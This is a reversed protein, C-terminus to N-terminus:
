ASHGGLLRRLGAEDLITVGLAEAKALKSGAEAGAVVYDTKASVSGACRGGAAKILAEAQPRTLTPLTGTLVFTKGAVGEVAAVVTRPATMVVGHARLAEIVRRVSPHSLQELVTVATTEAVQEVQEMAAIAADRDSAFQDAVALLAEMSGFHSALDEALKEGVLSLSLGTLLRALGRTKARAIAGVLNEASRTGFRELGELQAVTLDFLDAPTRVGLREVVQDVIAPGLGEIDMASRSAFHVLRERLQAPCTPNPCLIFIEETVVAAGCAPCVTPRPVPRSTPPRRALDVGVVQPIIENAKEVLVTDGVRVDKRELEAFNHLGARTVTTGALFVPDLEAVPTLKGTKGVQVIIQKLLTPKREPPFKYAIGWRPAHSTTGLTPYHRLPDVKVVVGDIDYPLEARARALELCAAIAEEIGPVPRSLPNTPLGWAQLKALVEHQTAPITMGEHWPISYLVASIGLDRLSDADKRKMLGACANRPNVFVREQASEQRANLALFRERTLYLEGRVEVSGRTVRALRPPVAGSALVQATIVDGQQGNGRSAAQVLQGHEYVLSVSMGDVKPECVLPLPAEPALELLKRTRRDWERLKDEASSDDDKAAKELSLMPVRHVITAFGPTRDDGPQRGYRQGEPIGLAECLAQYRDQLEDYQADSIEPEAQRYYREDHHRLQAELLARERQRDADSPAAARGASGAGRSRARPM